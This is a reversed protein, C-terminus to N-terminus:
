SNVLHYSPFLTEKILTVVQEVDEGRREQFERQKEVRSGAHLQDEEWDERREESEYRSEEMEKELEIDSM